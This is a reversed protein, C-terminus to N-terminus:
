GPATSQGQDSRLAGSSQDVVSIQTDLVAEPHHRQRLDRDRALDLQTNKLTAEDKAGV